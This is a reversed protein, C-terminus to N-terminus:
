KPRKFEVIWKEIRKEPEDAHIIADIEIKLVKYIVSAAQRVSKHKYKTTFLHLVKQRLRAFPEIRKLGGKLGSKPLKEPAVKQAVLAAEKDFDARQITHANLQEAHGVADMAELAWLGLMSDHRSGQHEYPAIEQQRLSSNVAQIREENLIEAIYALTLAAFYDTWTANPLSEQAIIDVEQQLIKLARVRNIFCVGGSEANIFGKEVERYRSQRLIWDLSDIIYAMQDPTRKALLARARKIQDGFYLFLHEPLNSYQLDFDPHFDYLHYPLFM